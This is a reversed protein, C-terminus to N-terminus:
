YTRVDLKNIKKQIYFSQLNINQLTENINPQNLIDEYSETEIMQIQEEISEIQSDVGKVEKRLSLIADLFPQLCNEIIIKMKGM